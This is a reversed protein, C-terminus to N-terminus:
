PNAAADALTPQNAYEIWCRCRPHAPPGIRWKKSGRKTRHLPKCIPCVKQDDETWWVDDSSIGFTEGAAAEGGETAATTTESVAISVDRDPGFISVATQQIETKTVTPKQRPTTPPEPITEGRPRVPPTSGPVPEGRAEAERQRRQWEDAAKRVRERSHAAYKAAVERARRQAFQQGLIGSREGGLGHQTASSVFVLLLLAILAEEQEQQVKQWFSEPVNDYSPPSGLLQVLERRHRSSVRSLRTAFESELQARDILDAM